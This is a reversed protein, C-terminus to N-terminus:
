SVLSNDTICIVESPGICTVRLTADAASHAFLKRNRSAVRLYRRVTHMRMELRGQWLDSRTGLAQRAAAEAKQFESVSNYATALALYANAEAPDLAQALTADDLAGNFDRSSLRVFVRM